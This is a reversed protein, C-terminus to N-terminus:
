YNDIIIYYFLIKNTIFIKDMEHPRYLDKPSPSLRELGGKFQACTLRALGGAKTLAKPHDDM